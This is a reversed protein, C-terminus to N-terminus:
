APTTTVSLDDSWLTGPGNLRLEVRLYATSAPATATLSLNTWDNTGSIPTSSSIPTLAALSATWFSVTVQAKNTANKTKLWASVDYRHGPAAAITKTQTMWRTLSSATSVIKLSHTPSHAADTAWSFTASGNKTYTGAPDAEMNPDPALNTAGAAVAATQASDASTSGAENTATVRVRLTSGVDDSVLTYSAVTAGGIDTCTAGSTDCRRWQYGYGTPSNTWDGTSGTLTQGQLATGTVQPLATNLPPGSSSGATTVSLDDSWLTGPGNLRLEVRLYATSAPATATLSLNTWDNTGSIPTSSSIPTLAALSATWFSVTVQAKNTANKTKLWASVDYRHGPAAAITKTQTMWRTLSSATSVIKLSHTPSHAADTAWSFTASGNKTYTGAPDAEMNPDPALNTAGAAVAATQASDASTSGAENTATVRVRLTSGVDDSVLTYSAVTAGGIDTCTAGSTDCRRWQYGYGTPSNTWDGTSGTLTQGQLATGTVQPLATNLPPGSSSGATTVSLDDSWLTGPGNLRLEVRLYATSAPATATLSLNTWDNTGSIPTSSSIPTLAALSATWFSVTVQAKNTANKTKLWASVDYRHGPAAAITKTQTMWRTLSSATSVIKLSHTPSHAADTAWSFTASGNKTYTGAPDAEMNPDPALSAAFPRTSSSCNNSEDDEEVLLTTDACVVLWYLGANPIRTGVSEHFTDGGAIAWEGHRAVSVDDLSHAPDRSVYYMTWSPGAMDTGVNRLTAGAPFSGGAAITWPPDDVTPVTLDSRRAPDPALYLFYSSSDKTFRRSFTQGPTSFTAEFRGRATELSPIAFSGDVVDTSADAYPGDLSSVRVTGTLADAVVGSVGETQAQFGARVGTSGVPGGGPSTTSASISIRGRYDSVGATVGWGRVDTVSGGSKLVAGAANLIRWDVSASVIPTEDGSSSRNFYNFMLLPVDQLIQNGVPPASDFVHQRAYWHAFRQGEVTPQIAAAIEVLSAETWRVSQDGFRAQRYLEANFLQEFDPNEILLKGFAYGALKYRFLTLESGYIDGYKAGISPQNLGEYYVDYLYSHADNRSHVYGPVRDFAEVTGGEAMGEEWSLLVNYEDHFAHFIEHVFVDDAPSTVDRLVIENMFFSYGGSGSFTPDHRVNVAHSFAPDGAIAKIVPYFVTVTNTLIALEEATWPHDPSNYTFTLDTPASTAASGHARAAREAEPRLPRGTADVYVILRDVGFRGTWPDAPSPQPLRAVAAHAAAAARARASGEDKLVAEPTVGDPLRVFVAGGLDPAASTPAIESSVAPTAAPPSAGSARVVDSAASPGSGAALLLAVALALGARARPSRVRRTAM